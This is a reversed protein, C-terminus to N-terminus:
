HLANRLNGGIGSRIWTRGSLRRTVKAVISSVELHDNFITKSGYGTTGLIPMVQSSSTANQINNTQSFAPATRTLSASTELNSLLCQSHRGCILGNIEHVWELPLILKEGSVRASHADALCMFNSHGILDWESDCYNMCIVHSRRHFQEHRGDRDGNPRTSSRGDRFHSPKFIAYDNFALGLLYHM